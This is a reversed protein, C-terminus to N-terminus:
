SCLWSCLWSCLRARRSPQAARRRTDATEVKELDGATMTSLARLSIRHHAFVPVYREASLELLLNVLQREM